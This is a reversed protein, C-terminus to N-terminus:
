ISFNVIAMMEETNKHQEESIPKFFRQNISQALQKTLMNETKAPTANPDTLPNNIANLRKVATKGTVQITHLVEMINEHNAKEAALQSSILQNNSDVVKQLINKEIPLATSAVFDEIIPIVWNVYGTNFISAGAGILFGRWGSKAFISNLTARTTASSLVQNRYTINFFNISTGFTTAVTGLALWKAQKENYGIAMYNTKLLDTAPFAALVAANKGARPLFGTHTRNAWGAFGRQWVPMKYESGTKNLRQQEKIHIKNVSRSNMLVTELVGCSIAMTIPFSIPTFVPLIDSLAATKQNNLEVFPEAHLEESYNSENAFKFSEVESAHKLSILKSGKRISQTYGSPLKQLSYNVATQIFKQKKLLNVMQPKNQRISRRLMDAPLFFLASIGAVTSSNAIADFINKRSPIESNIQKNELRSKM